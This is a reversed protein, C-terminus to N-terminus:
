AGAEEAVAELFAEGFHRLKAEGVGKIRIFASKSAPKERAIARLTADSFVVYPPVGREEALSKRLARLREFLAKEDPTLPRAEVQSRHKGREAKWRDGRRAGSGIPLALTITEEAKMVAVGRPGFRLEKHEGRELAGQAVLQELFGTVETKRRDSLMGFVSLQHHGLREIRENVAGRVVDAIHAAGFSQETRAVASLLVQCVRTSDAEAETEGLCVDCAGCNDKEYSQGFYASLQAHRCRMSAIMRRVERLLTLQAELAGEDGGWEAHSRRILREWRAGDSARDLLLCEAPLGDRGARGTEQQYAEISKPAAAHVVLRVNSRDVGMGFAVTAAVVDLEERAFSSEVRRRTGTDLGAHYAQADVGLTRLKEAM